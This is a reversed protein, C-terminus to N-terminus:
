RNDDDIRDERGLPEHTDDGGREDEHRQFYEVGALLRHDWLEQDGVVRVGGRRKDIGGARMRAGQEAVDPVVGELAAAELRRGMVADLAAGMWRACPPTSKM